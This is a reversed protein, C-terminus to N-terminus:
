STLLLTVGQTYSLLTGMKIKGRDLMSSYYQGSYPLQCGQTKLNRCNTYYCTDYIKHNNARLFLELVCDEEDNRVTPSCCLTDFVVTKQQHVGLLKRVARFGVGCDWLSGM